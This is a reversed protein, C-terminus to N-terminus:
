YEIIEACEDVFENDPLTILNDADEKNFWLSLEIGNTIRYMKQLPEFLLEFEGVKRILKM